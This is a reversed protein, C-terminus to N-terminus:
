AAFSIGEGRRLNDLDAHRYHRQTRETTHRLMRQILPESLGWLSEAHTAWSHRLLQFTVGPM